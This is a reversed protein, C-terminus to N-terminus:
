SADRGWHPRRERTAACRRRGMNLQLAAVAGVRGAKSGGHCGAGAFGVLFERQGQVNAQEPADQTVHNALLLAGAGVVRDLLHALQRHRIAAVGVRAGVPRELFQQGREAAVLRHAHDAGEGVEAVQGVQGLVAMVDAAAGHVLAGAVALLAADLHGERAKAAGPQAIRADHLGQGTGVHGRHEGGVGGLHLALADQVGLALDGLQQGLAVVDLRAGLPGAGGLVRQGQTLQGGVLRLQAGAHRLQPLRPQQAKGPQRHGVLDFVSQGVVLGGEQAFDGLQIGLQLVRQAARSVHRGKQAHPLPDAAVAVAVGVDAGVGQRQGQAALGLHRQAVVQRLHVM